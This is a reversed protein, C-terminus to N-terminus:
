RLGRLSSHRSPHITVTRQRARKKPVPAVPATRGIMLRKYVAESMFKGDVYIRAPFQHFLLGRSSVNIIRQQELRIDSGSLRGKIILDGGRTPESVHTVSTDGLKSTMKNYWELAVREGYAKANRELASEAVIYPITDYVLFSLGSGGTPHDKRLNGRISQFLRVWKHSSHVRPLAPGLNGQMLKLKERVFEKYDQELEPVYQLMTEKLVDKM